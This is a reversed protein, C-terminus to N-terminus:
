QAFARDYATQDVAIIEKYRLNNLEDLYAQWDSDSNPNMQGMAFLARTEMIYMRLATRAETWQDAEEPLYSLPPVLDSMAPAHDRNYGYNLAYQYEDNDINGDWVEINDYMSRICSHFHSSQLTANGLEGSTSKIVKLAPPMGFADFMSIEGDEAYRWNVGEEGFRSIINFEKTLSPDMMGANLYAFALEPYECDKTIASHMEISPRSATQWQVGNPGSCVELPIYEDPSNGFYLDVAGGTVCMGILAPDARKLANYTATDTTFCTEDLLGEAILKNAFILFDRYEPKDYAVDIKGDCESLPLYLNYNDGGVDDFYIFMNQLYGMVETQWNGTEQGMLPIEDKLGNGNPDQDRFAVLVNYLEESTTPVALGLKDLWTKNIFARVSYYNAPNPDYSFNTYIEGDAMTIEGLAAEYDLGVEECHARIPDGLESDYYQTMPVIVGNQAYNFLRTRQDMAFGIIDPLKAGSVVMMDLKAECDAKPFIVFEVNVGTHENLWKTVHNDYYDSVNIDADIAVTLTVTGPDDVLPLAPYDKTLLPDTIEAFAPTVVVLFMALVMMLLLARKM